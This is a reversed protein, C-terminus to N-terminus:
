VRCIRKVLGNVKDRGDDNYRQDDSTSDVVNCGPTNLKKGKGM